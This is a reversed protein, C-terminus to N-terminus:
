KDIFKFFSYRFGATGPIFGPENLSYVDSAEKIIPVVHFSEASLIDAKCGLYSTLINPAGGPTLGPYYDTDWDSNNLISQLQVVLDKQNVTVNDPLDPLGAPFGSYIYAIRDLMRRGFWVSNTRKKIEELRDPPYKELVKDIMKDIINEINEKQVM